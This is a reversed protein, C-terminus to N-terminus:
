QGEGEIVQIGAAALMEVVQKRSYAPYSHDAYTCAPLPLEITATRSELAPPVTYLKIVRRPDANPTIPNVTFLYGCGDKEVDRLEVEDTWAVPEFAARELEAIRQQAEELQKFLEKWSVSNDLVLKTVREERSKYHELAGLLRDTYQEVEVAMQRLEDSPAYAILRSLRHLNASKQVSVLATIDNM